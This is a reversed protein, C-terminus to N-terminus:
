NTNEYIIQKLIMYTGYIAMIILIVVCIIIVIKAKRENKIDKKNM